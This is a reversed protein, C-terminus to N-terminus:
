LVDKYESALNFDDSSSMRQSPDHKKHLDFNPSRFLPQTGAIHVKQKMKILYDMLPVAWPSGERLKAVEEIMYM